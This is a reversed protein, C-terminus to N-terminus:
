ATKSRLKHMYGCVLDNFELLDAEMKEIHKEDRVVSIIELDRGINKLAPCYLVFDAWKRGTIWLGGQVQDICDSIDGDLLIPMLSAPSVFCKYESIGHDDILGDVSAGFLKDETTIFGAQEVLIGKKSEHAMRAEPELEHGRRMAWTEFQQEDLLEGSIRECALRFAYKKAAASFDGNKLKTRAERFMSATIVGCRAAKWEPTGQAAEHIIM